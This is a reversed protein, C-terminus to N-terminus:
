GGKKLVLLGDIKKRIQEINDANDKEQKLKLKEADRKAQEIDKKAQAAADKQAQELILREEHPSLRAGKRAKKGLRDVKERGKELERLALNEEKTLDGVDAERKKLDAIEELSFARDKAKKRGMRRRAKRDGSSELRQAQTRDFAATWTEKRDEARKLRGKIDKQEKAGEHDAVKKQLGALEKAAKEADKKQKDELKKKEKLEKAARKKSAEVQAKAMDEEIRKVAAIEAKAAEEKAKIAAAAKEKGINEARAKGARIETDEKDKEYAVSEIAESPSLGSAIGGAVGAVVGVGKLVAGIGKVIPSLVKWVWGLAIGVGSLADMAGKAWRDLSGNNRLKDIWEILIKIKNKALDQFRDGFDALAGDWKDKLTSVLGEGTQSLAEMGGKSKELEERLVRWVDINDAGAKQLEEMKNRTAGSMLGMETLRMAAEGFPKGNKIAGYARATWMGVEKIDFGSKAAADGVLTLSDKMGLVNDTMSLMTKSAQALDSLQFPTSNAFEALDKFHNKADEMNGFLISFQSKYREFEFSKQLAKFMVGGVAAIGVMAARFSLLSKLAGMVGASFKKRFQNVSAAVKNFGQKALNKVRVVISLEPPM